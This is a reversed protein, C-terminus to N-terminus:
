FFIWVKLGMVGTFTKVLSLQTLVRNDFTAHSSKGTRQLITRTRANGAVSIKGKLKFKIGKVKLERFIPTFFFRLVYKLYRFFLRYKWFSVKKMMNLLWNSFFFPDKLKLSLYLIELSESLFLRPGLMKRFVKLKPAWSRCQAKEYFSLFNQLQTNIKIIIKKGTCHQFFRILSDIYFPTSMIPFKDYIFMKLIKKKLIYFFNSSPIINNQSVVVSKSYFFFSNLYSPLFFYFFNFNKFNFNNNKNLLFFKFFLSKQSFFFTFDFSFLIKFPTFFNSFIKLNQVKDAILSKTTFNVNSVKSVFSVAQSNKWLNNFFQCKAIVLNELNCLNKISKNAHTFHLYPNLFFNLQTPNQMALNSFTQYWVNETLNYLNVSCINKFFYLSQQVKKHIKTKKFLFEFKEIRPYSRFIQLVDLTLTDTSSLQFAYAQTKKFSSNNFMNLGFIIQSLFFFFSLKINSSYRLIKINKKKIHSVQKLLFFNVLFTSLQKNKNIFFYSTKTQYFKNNIGTIAKFKKLYINNNKFSFENKKKLNNFMKYYHVFQYFNNNLFFKHFNLIQLLNLNNNKYFNKFCAYLFTHHYNKININKILVYLVDKITDKVQTKRSFNLYFMFCTQKSLRYNEFSVVTTVLANNSHFFFTEHNLPFLSHNFFNTFMSFITGCTQLSSPKSKKFRPLLLLLFQVWM